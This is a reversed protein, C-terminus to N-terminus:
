IGLSNYWQQVQEYSHKGLLYNGYINNKYYILVPLRNRHDTPLRSLRSDNETAWETDVDPYEKKIAELQNKIYSLNTSDSFAFGVIKHTTM